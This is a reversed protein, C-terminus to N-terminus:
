FGEKELLEVFTPVSSSFLLHFRKGLNSTIKSAYIFM